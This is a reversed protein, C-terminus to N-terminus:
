MAVVENFPEDCLKVHSHMSSAECKWMSIIPQKIYMKNWLFHADEHTTEDVDGTTYM